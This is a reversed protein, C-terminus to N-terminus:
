DGMWSLNLLVRILDGASGVADLATGIIKDGGTTTTKARGTSSSTVADGIAVSAEGLVKAIGAVQVQAAEGSTPDNVLVGITNSTASTSLKVAGATDASLQVIKYQGASLDGTATFGVLYSPNASVTM